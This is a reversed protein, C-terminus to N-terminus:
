KGKKFIGIIKRPIFLVVDAIGTMVRKIFSPKAEKAPESTNLPIAKDPPTIYLNDTEPNESAHIRHDKSNRQDKRAIGASLRALEQDLDGNPSQSHETSSLSASPPRVPIYSSEMSETDQVEQRPLLKDLATVRSRGHQPGEHLKALERLQRFYEPSPSDTSGDNPVM